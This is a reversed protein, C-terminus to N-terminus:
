EFVPAVGHEDCLRNVMAVVAVSPRTVKRSWRWLTSEDVLCVFALQSRGGIAAYLAVWPAPTDDGHQSM